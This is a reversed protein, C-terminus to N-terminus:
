SLKTENFILGYQGRSDQKAPYRPKSLVHDRYDQLVGWQAFSFPRIKFGDPITSSSQKLKSNAPTKFISFMAITGM